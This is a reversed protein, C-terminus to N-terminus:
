VGGTMLSGRDDHELEKEGGKVDISFSIGVSAGRKQKKKKVSRM